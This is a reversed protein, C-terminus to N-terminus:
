RAGNQGIGATLVQGMIVESVQDPKVGARELVKRIIHAGLDSAAVKALTGGFKGIATRAAGVIVIEEMDTEGRQRTRRMGGAAECLKRSRARDFCIRRQRTRSASPPQRGQVSRALAGM